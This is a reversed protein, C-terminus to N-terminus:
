RERFNKLTGGEGVSEANYLVHYTYQLLSAKTHWMVPRVPTVHEFKDAATHAGALCDKAGRVRATTLQDGSLPMKLDLHEDFVM